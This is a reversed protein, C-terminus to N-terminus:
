RAASSPGPITVVFGCATRTYADIRSAAADANGQEGALARQAAQGASPIDTASQVAANSAEALRRITHWELAINEPAVADATGVRDTIVALASKLQQITTAAGFDNLSAYSDRVARATLCYRGSTVAASRSAPGCGLVLLSAVPLAAGLLLRRRM